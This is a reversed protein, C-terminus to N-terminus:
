RRRRLACVVAGAALVAIPLGLTFLLGLGAAAGASVHLSEASLSKGDIVATNEQGILWNVASGFVQANGGSVSQSATASLFNPCNVWVVRADTVSSQAAMAVAFCGEPDNEGKQLEDATLYDLMAYATDSTTLM